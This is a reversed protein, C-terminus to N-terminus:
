YHNHPGKIKKTSLDYLTDITTALDFDAETISKVDNTTLTTKVYSYTLLVEPHHDAVEARVSVKTVFMFGRMYSPFM